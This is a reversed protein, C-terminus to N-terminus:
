HSENESRSIKIEDDFGNLEEHKRLCCPKQCRTKNGSESAHLSRDGTRTAIDHGCRCHISHSQAMM